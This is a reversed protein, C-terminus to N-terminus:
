TGHYRSELKELKRLKVRVDTPLESSSRPEDTSATTEATGQNNESSSNERSGKETSAVGNHGAVARPAGSGSPGDDEIVFESEFEAPDPGKTPPDGDQRGRAAQARRNPSLNRSSPRTARSNSRSPSSQSFRQRAQEEAITSDIVGKLRQTWNEDAQYLLPHVIYSSGFVNVHQELVLRGGFSIGHWRDITGLM